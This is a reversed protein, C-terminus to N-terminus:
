SDFEKEYRDLEDKYKKAFANGAREGYKDFRSKIYALKNFRNKLANKTNVIDKKTGYSLDKKDKKLKLARDAAGKAIAIGQKIFNQGEKSKRFKSNQKLADRIVKKSDIDDVPKSMRNVHKALAKATNEKNMRGTLALWAKGASRVAPFQDLPKGKFSINKALDRGARYVKKRANDYETDNRAEDYVEYDDEIDIYDEDLIEEIEEYANNYGELFAEELISEFEERTM